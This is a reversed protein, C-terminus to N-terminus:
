YQTGTLSSIFVQANWSARIRCLGKANGDNAVPTVTLTHYTGRTIKGNSDADLYAAVDAVGNKFASAPVTNGDVRVVFGSVTPGKYIGYEIGHDHDPLTYSHSHDPIDMDHTHSPVTVSLAPINIVAVGSHTHWFEHSHSGANQTLLSARGTTGSISITKGAYNYVGSTYDSGSSHMHNWSLSYTDSFDHSHSALEHQHTGASATTANVTWDQLPAGVNLTSSVATTESTVTTGGGSRSTRTSGGGSETTTMTGGGGVAGKSDARYQSITVKLMVANVHIMTEPIYLDGEAPTNVDANQEISDSFIFTSGQGYLQTIRAQRELQAIVSAVDTPQTSITLKVDGPTCGPKPYCKEIVRTRIVTGSKPMPIRVMRGVYFADMPEGTLQSLEAATVTRSIPPHQVVDLVAQARAMLTAADTITTDAYVMEVEGWDAQTPADLYECGNNVDRITLQNVGEGYGRPYIRTAFNGDQIAEVLDILNRGERLESADEDSLHVVSLKYPMATTDTEIMWDTLPELLKLLASLLNEDSLGYEFHTDFECRDLTWVVPGAQYSLVTEIAGRLEQTTGGLQHYGPMIKDKLTCLVHDCKYKTKGGRRRQSSPQTAVRFMDIRKGEADFLEIYQRYGFSGVDATPMTLTFTSLPEMKMKLDTVEATRLDGIARLNVDYIRPYRRM